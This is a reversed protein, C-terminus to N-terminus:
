CFHKVVIFRFQDHNFAVAVGTKIDRGPGIMLGGRDQPVGVSEAAAIATERIVLGAKGPGIAKEVGRNGFKADIAGAVNEEGGLAFIPLAFVAGGLALLRALIAEAKAPGIVIM